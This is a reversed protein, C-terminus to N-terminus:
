QPGEMAEYEAIQQQRAIRDLRDIEDWKEATTMGSLSIREGVRRATAHARRNLYTDLDTM